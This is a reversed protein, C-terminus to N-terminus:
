AHAGEEYSVCPQERQWLQLSPVRKRYTGNNRGELVKLFSVYDDDGLFISERRRGRNMTHYWAGPYEIRLPRPM